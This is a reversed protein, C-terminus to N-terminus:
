IFEICEEITYGKENGHFECAIESVCKQYQTKSSEHQSQLFKMDLFTKFISKMLMKVEHVKIKITEKSEEKIANVKLNNHDLLLNYMVNPIKIMGEFSLWKADLLSQVM